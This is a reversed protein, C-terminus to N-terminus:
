KNEKIYKELGGELVENFGCGGNYFRTIFTITGDENPYLKIFYDLDDQTHDEIIEFLQNKVIIYNEYLEDKIYEIPDIPDYGDVHTIKTKLIRLCLDEFSEHPESLVKRLKGYHGEYDSM